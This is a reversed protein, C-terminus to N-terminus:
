HRVNFGKVRFKRKPGDFLEHIASFVISFKKNFRRELSKIKMRIDEHKLLLERIRVFARVVFVSTQIARESHLINAAMLAGHETFAYPMYQTNRHKTSGTAFQSRNDGGLKSSEERTLRFCFDLPFRGSNRKVQENLRKTSIGYIEALDFDLMVRHGRIVLIKEEIAHVVVDLHKM